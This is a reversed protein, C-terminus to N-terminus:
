LIVKKSFVNLKILLINLVKIFWTYIFYIKIILYNNLSLHKSTPSNIIRNIGEIFSNQNYNMLWIFAKESDKKYNNRNLLYSNLADCIEYENSANIMPYLEVKKSEYYDDKRYGLYSIRSSIIEANSCYLYWSEKGFQGVGIDALRLIQLLDKRHMKPVWFVNKELGLKDILEKTKTVDGGYEFLILTFKINRNEKKFKHLGKIFIDNGKSVNDPASFWWQRSQQVLLLNSNERLKLIKSIIEEKGTRNALLNPYYIFPLPNIISGKIKVKKLAELIFDNNISMPLFKANRIGIKQLVSSRLKDVEWIKPLIYNSKYFPWEFLDTGAWAFYDLRLNLRALLAPSYDTGIYFDYGLFYQKLIKIDVKMVEGFDMDIKKINFKIDNADNYEAEPRFHDFEHLLFLDVDHGMEALYQASPAIINNM